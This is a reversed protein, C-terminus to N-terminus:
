ITEVIDATGYATKITATITLARTNGDFVSSYATIETVGTTGLIRARIAADYALQTYKGLVETAWATGDSTDLFWEGLWLSLRTRVAQAVAEVQNIYFNASSQGFSYDGNADLMRYRM